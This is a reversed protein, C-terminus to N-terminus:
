LSSVSLIGKIQIQISKAILCLRNICCNISCEFTQTISKRKSISRTAPQWQWEIHREQRGTIIIYKPTLKHLILSKRYEKKRTCKLSGGTRYRKWSSLLKVRSITKISRTTTHIRRLNSDIERWRQRHPETYCNTKTWHFHTFINRIRKSINYTITYYYRSIKRERARGTSLILLLSGTSRNLRSM